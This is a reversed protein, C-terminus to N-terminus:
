AVFQISFGMVFVLYIFITVVVSYILNFKITREFLKNFYLSLVFVLPIFWGTFKWVVLFVILGIISFILTRVNKKGEEDLVVFQVTGNQKIGRVVLAIGFIIILGGLLYPFFGGGPVGDSTKGEFTLQPNITTALVFMAGFLVSIIGPITDGKKM